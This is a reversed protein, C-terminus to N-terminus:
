RRTGGYDSQKDRWVKHPHPGPFNYPTDMVLEIWVSPGDIRIYDGAATLDIGGSFAIHTDELESEYRTMFAAANAEDIDDVYTAIVARLLDRQAETLGSAAIGEAEDPFIWDNGAGMTIDAFRRSLRATELQDADLAALLSIHAEMEQRHPALVVGDHEIPQASGVGRFSPTAGILIGDRYTKTLAFHHGGFQLQWLGTASPEGLFAAYFDGRGYNPNVHDRLYDDIELHQRLEDYGENRGSGTAAALLTYLGEWQNQSLTELRLGIRGRRGMSFNPYNHWRAANEFSYPQMLTARQEASLLDAFALASDLVQRGNAVVSAADTDQGLSPTALPPAALLVMVLGCRLAGLAGSRRREAVRGSRVSHENTM